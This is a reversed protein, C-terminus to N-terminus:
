KEELEAYTFTIISRDSKEQLVLATNCFCKNIKHAPVMNTNIITGINGNNQIYNETTATIGLGIAVIEFKGAYRHEM